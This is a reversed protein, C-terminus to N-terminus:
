VKRTSKKIQLFTKLLCQQLTILICTASNRIQFVNRTNQIKNSESFYNNTNQLQIEIEIYTKYNLYLGILNLYIKSSRVSLM